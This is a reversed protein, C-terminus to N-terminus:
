NGTYWMHRVSEAVRVEFVHGNAAFGKLGQTDAGVLDSIAESVAAEEESLHFSGGCERNCGSHGGEM